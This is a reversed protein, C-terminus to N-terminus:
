EEKVDNEQEDLKTTMMKYLTTNKPFKDVFPLIVDGFYILGEGQKSNTIYRTQSESIKLRKALIDKDDNSQNLMLIFDTNDFINGIEPSALFDKVNQTIGTPYGGWKRFRKWIEISYNATQPEKLLLHFEDIYYRTIKRLNRNTSVKNWVQDQLIFMGIKKLQTGLEKIDFCLLKKNLDINTHHNFVNLSGTVYIEMEEALKKGINGQEKLMEYLDQLIPLNEEKPENFYKEYVKPICRDIVSKEIAALGQSGVVLEFLNIIFNAKDKLPEDGDGYNINIDFPNLYTKSKASLKIVEGGFLRTLNGYEGEPDCIIVDDDTVLLTSVMERKAAFSKGSGPTGLILGNPCKLTSRDAMILNNSLANLGYYFSENSIQFLEKSSFPVFVAVSSSTMFRKVKMKNIGLGLTSLLGSEQMFSCPKFICNNKNCIASIKGIVDEIEEINKGFNMITINLEFLKEDRSQLDDLLEKMAKQYTTLSDPIIDIDYGNRLAKKQEEIVNKQVDSLKRKVLKIAKLQEIVDVHISLQLNTQLSLIEILMKDSLENAMIQISGVSAKRNDIEFYCKNEFNFTDPSVLTKISKYNKYDILEDEIKNKPNLLLALIKIRENGLIDRTIVGLDRLQNNIELGIRELRLKANKFSKDKVSFVIYKTKKIGNNGKKIQNSLMDRFEKRLYDLEDNKNLINISKASEKLDENYNTFFMEIKTSPELSNFINAYRSFISAQREESELEYNIDDFSIMKSYEDNGLVCIGDELITTFELTDECTYKKKGLTFLEKFNDLVGKKEEKLSYLKLNRTNSQKPKDKEKVM